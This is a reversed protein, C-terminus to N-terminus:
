TDINNQDLREILSLIEYYALLLKNSYAYSFLYLIGKAINM